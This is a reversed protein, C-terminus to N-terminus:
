RLLQRLHPEPPSGRLPRSALHPHRRGPRDPKARDRLSAAAGSHRRLRQRLLKNNGASARLLMASTTYLALVNRTGLSAAIANAQARFKAPSEQAVALSGPGPGGNAHGPPYVILQNTAVYPGTFDLVDSFRYSAGICILVALFVAFSVAALAAGSRARYRALDRLALRVAIPARRGAPGLVMIALAALFLSGVTIAVLGLVLELTGSGGNGNSSGALGFLLLGVVLTLGGLVASHHAPKPPAPRGSLAAV